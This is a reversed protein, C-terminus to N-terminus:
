SLRVKAQHAKDSIKDATDKVPQPVVKAVEHKAKEAQHKFDDLKDSAQHKTHEASEKAKHKTHDFRDEYYEGRETDKNQLEVVFFSHWASSIHFNRHV